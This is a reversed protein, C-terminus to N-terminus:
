MVPHQVTGEQKGTIRGQLVMESSEATLLGPNDLHSLISTHSARDCVFSQLKKKSSQALGAEKPSGLLLTEECYIHESIHLM